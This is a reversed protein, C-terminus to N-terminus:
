IFYQSIINNLFLFSSIFGASGCVVFLVASKVIYTTSNFLFPLFGQFGESVYSFSFCYILYIVSVFAPSMFSTWWWHYDDSKAKLFTFTLSINSSSLILIFITMIMFSKPSDLSSNRRESESITLLVVLISIFLYIGGYVRLYGPSMYFPSAPVHRPIMNVKCPTDNIPFKLGVTSGISVSITHILVLVMIHLITGNTPSSASKTFIFLLSRICFILVFLAPTLTLIAKYVNRWEYGGVYKFTFMSVFGCIIGSWSMVSFFTSVVDSFEGYSKLSMYLLSFITQVGIGCFTCLISINQPM